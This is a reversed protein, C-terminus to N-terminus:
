GGSSHTFASGSKQFGLGAAAGAALASFFGAAFGHYRASWKKASANFRRADLSTRRGAAKRRASSKREYM